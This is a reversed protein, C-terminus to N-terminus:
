LNLQLSGNPRTTLIQREWRWPGPEIGPAPFNKQRTEFNKSKQPFFLFLPQSTSIGDLFKLKINFLQLFNSIMLNSSSMSNQLNKSFLLLIRQGPTSGPVAAQFAVISVTVGDVSWVGFYMSSLKLESQVGTLNKWM